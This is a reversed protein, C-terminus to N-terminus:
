PGASPLSVGIMGDEQGGDWGEPMALPEGLQADPAPTKPPAESKLFQERKRLGEIIEVKVQTPKKDDAKDEIRRTQFIADTIAANLIETTANTGTEPTLVLKLKARQSAIILREADEPSVQFTVMSVTSRAQYPNVGGENPGRKANQQPQKEKGEKGENDLKFVKDIAMVEVNRLLYSTIRTNQQKGAADVDLNFTALIDVKDKQKLFGGCADVTNINISVARMGKRINFSLSTVQDKDTFRANLVPEGMYITVLAIKGVVNDLSEAYDLKPLDREEVQKVELWDKKIETRKLINEKAFVVPKTRRKAQALQIDEVKKKQAEEFKRRNSRVGMYVFGAVVLAIMIALVKRQQGTM